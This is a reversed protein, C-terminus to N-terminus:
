PGFIIFPASMSPLTLIREIAWLQRPNNAIKRDHLTHINGSLITTSQVAHTPRPFLLHLAHHVARLTQYQRRLPIRNLQFRVDFRLQTVDKPFSRHFRLAVQLERVYHVHGEYWTDHEAGSM